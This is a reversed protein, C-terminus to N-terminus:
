FLYSVLPRLEEDLPPAESSRFYWNLASQPGSENDDLYRERLYGEGAVLRKKGYYWRAWESIPTPAIEYALFLKCIHNLDNGVNDPDKKSIYVRAFSSFLLALDTLWLVPWLLWFKGSFSILGRIFIGWISPGAFDCSFFKKSPKTQGIDKKDWFFGFRSWLTTHMAEFTTRLEFLIVGILLPTFNDRTMTGTQGPWHEDDLSTGM